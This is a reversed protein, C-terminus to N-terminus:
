QVVEIRSAGGAIAASRIGAACDDLMQAVSMAFHQDGACAIRELAGILGAVAFAPHLHGVGQMVFDTAQEIAGALDSQSPQATNQDM